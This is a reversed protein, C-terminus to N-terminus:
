CKDLHKALKIGYRKFVEKAPGEVFGIIMGECCHRAWSALVEAGGADHAVLGTIKRM